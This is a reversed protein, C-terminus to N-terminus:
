CLESKRECVRSNFTLTVTLTRYTILSWVTALSKGRDQSYKRDTPSRNLAGVDEVEGGKHPCLAGTRAGGARGWGCEAEGM